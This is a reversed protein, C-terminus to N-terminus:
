RSPTQVTVDVVWQRCNMPPLFILLTNLLKNIASDASQKAMGANACPPSAPPVLQTAIAAPNEIAIAEAPHPM